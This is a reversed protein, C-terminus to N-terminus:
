AHVGDADRFAAKAAQAEAEDVFPNPGKHVIRFLRASECDVNRTLHRNYNSKDYFITKCILCRVGQKPGNYEVQAEDVLQQPLAVPSLGHSVQVELTAAVSSVLVPFPENGRNDNGSNSEIANGERPIVSRFSKARECDLNRPLHRNFGSKDHYLHKCVLCRMARESARERCDKCRYTERAHECIGSGGCQSCRSKQRGHECNYAKSSHPRCINCHLKQRLHVCLAAGKCIKCLNQRKEHSCRRHRSQSRKKIFVQATVPNPSCIVQTSLRDNSVNAATSKQSSVAPKNQVIVRLRIPKRRGSGTTTADTVTASARDRQQRAPQPASSQSAINRPSTMGRKGIVRSLPHILPAPSSQPAAVQRLSTKRIQRQGGSGTSTAVRGYVPISSNLSIECAPLPFAKFAIPHIISPRRPLAEPTQYSLLSSACACPPEQRALGTDHNSHAGFGLGPLAAARFVRLTNTMICRLKANSHFAALIVIQYRCPIVGAVLAVIVIRM